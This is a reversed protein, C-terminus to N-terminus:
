GATSLNTNELLMTVHLVTDSLACAFLCYVNCLVFIQCEDEWRWSLIYPLDKSTVLYKWFFIKPPLSPKQSATGVLICWSSGKLFKGYYCYKFVQYFEVCNQLNHNRRFCSVWICKIIRYKKRVFAVWFDSELTVLIALCLRKFSFFLLVSLTVMNRSERLFMDPLEVLLFLSLSILLILDWPMKLIWLFLSVYFSQKQFYSRGFKFCNTFLTLHVSSNWM